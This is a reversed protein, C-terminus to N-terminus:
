LISFVFFVGLVILRVVILTRFEVYLEHKILGLNFRIKRPKQIPKDDQTNFRFTYM